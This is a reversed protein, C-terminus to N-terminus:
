GENRPRSSLRREILHQALGFRQHAGAHALQQDDRLVGAGVPAVQAVALTSHRPRLTSVRKM